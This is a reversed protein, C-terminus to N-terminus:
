RRRAYENRKFSNFAHGDSEVARLGDAKTPPAPPASGAGAAPPASRASSGNPPPRGQRAQVMERKHAHFNSNFNTPINMAPGSASAMRQAREQMMRHKAAETAEINAIRDEAPLEVESIGALWRNADEEGEEKQKIKSRGHLIREQLQAPTVYLDEDDAAASGSVGEGGGEKRMQEEIYRLMNPDVEGEDVQATFTSDLGADEEEEEAAADAVGDGKAELTVGRSRQRQKQLERMVVLSQRHARSSVDAVRSEGAAGNERGRQLAGSRFVCGPATSADAAAEEALEDSSRKRM